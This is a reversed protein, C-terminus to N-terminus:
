TATVNIIPRGRQGSVIWNLTSSSFSPIQRTEMLVDPVSFDFTSCIMGNPSHSINAM